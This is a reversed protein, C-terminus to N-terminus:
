LKPIRNSMLITYNEQPGLRITVVTFVFINLLSGKPYQFVSARFTKPKWLAASVPDEVIHFAMNRTTNSRTSVM